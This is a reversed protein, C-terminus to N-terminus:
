RGVIKQPRIPLVVWAAGDLERDPGTAAELRAILDPLTQQDTM